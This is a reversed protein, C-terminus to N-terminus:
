RIVNSEEHFLLDMLESNGLKSILVEDNDIIDNQLETKDIQMKLIHQEISHESILRYVNVIKTQGIRHTRDIAQNEVAPNWWPDYIIVNNAGTLNLGVGGAKLSVLYVPVNNKNFKESQILRDRGKTNGDLYYYEVQMQDLKRKLIELMGTYQSFVVVKEKNSILEEVIEVFVPIKGSECEYDEVFLGPDLSLQRLRTIATLVEMNKNGINKANLFHKIQTQYEEVYKKYLKKQKPEMDCIVNNIIKDPLEKLVDKKKRRLMFPSIIKKLKEYNTGHFNGKFTDISSLYSPIIFDFISWLDLLQNEIPTGTLAIKFKGNIQKVAKATKTQPNKIYQAEDIVVLEFSNEKILDIDNALMQYSILTISNTFKSYNRKRIEKDGEIITVNVKPHFKTFESKWNHLLAKPLIILSNKLDNFKIFSIVQLTKGLGMEDCLLAGLKSKYLTNLWNVGSIQYKRLEYNKDILEEKGVSKVDQITTIYENFENSFKSKDFLGETMADLYIAKYKPISFTNETYDDNPILENVFQLQALLKEDNLKLYTDNNLLHFDRNSKYSYIIDSVESIDIGALETSLKFFGSNSSEIKLSISSSDITSIANTLKDDLYINFDQKLKLLNTTLFYFQKRGAEIIFEKLIYDYVYGLELLIQYVRDELKTNRRILIGPNEELANYENYLFKPQIHIIRESLYCYLEIELKEEVIKFDKEGTIKIDFENFLKPLLDNEFEYSNRTDITIVKKSSTFSNILEIKNYETEDIVYLIGAKYDIILRNSITTLNESNQVNIEYGSQRSDVALVIDTLKTRIDFEIDDITINSSISNTFLEYYSDLSNYGQFELLNYKITQLLQLQSPELRYFETDLDIGLNLHGKSTVIYIFEKIDTIKYARKGIVNCYLSLEYGVEHKKLQPQIHIIEEKYVSTCSERLLEIKYLDSQKSMLAKNKEEIYENIKLMALGQHICIANKKAVACNCFAVVKKSQENFSILVNQKEHKDFVGVEYKSSDETESIVRLNSFKTTEYEWMADDYIKKDLNQIIIDKEFKM